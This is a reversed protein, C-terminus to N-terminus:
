SWNHAQKYALTKKYVTDLKNICDNSHLIHNTEYELLDQAWDRSNCWLSYKNSKWQSYHSILFSTQSHMGTQWFTLM